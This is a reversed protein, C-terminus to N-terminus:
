AGPLRGIVRERTWHEGAWIPTSAADVDVQFDNDVRRLASWAIRYPKALASGRRELWGALWAALRPHVRGALPVPGLEAAVVRPPGDGGVELVISDIRGIKMGVRDVLQADLGGHVLDM